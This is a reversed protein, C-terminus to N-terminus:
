MMRENLRGSGCRRLAARTASSPTAIAAGTPSTAARLAAEFADRAAPDTALHVAVEQGIEDLGAELMPPTVNLSAALVDRVTASTAGLHEVQHVIVGFWDRGSPSPASTIAGASSIARASAISRVVEQPLPAQLLQACNLIGAGWNNRDWHPPTSASSTLLQKFLRSLNPRGFRAVLNDWGHKALWLAAAGAVTAVAFSTGKGMDVRPENAANAIANWVSEGPASVDVARGRCSGSWPAQDFTTGAVAITEDYAAPWVVFRVCNGAAAIVICGGSVAYTIADHLYGWGLGGLSLSIIHCGHDAAYRIAKAVNSMDFLVISDTVRLDMVTADPAVGTVHPRGGPGEDSVIVSGTGTGHGPTPVIGGQELPDIPSDNNAMFNWGGLAERGNLEPHKTYGTDPHGIVIGTGRGIGSEALDQWAARVAVQELSWEWDGAAGPNNEGNTCDFSSFIGGRLSAEASAGPPVVALELIPEAAEIDGDARLAYVDDWLQAPTLPAPPTAHFDRDGAPAGRWFPDLSWGAGLRRTLAARATTVPAASAGAGSPRVRLFIGKARVHAGSVPSPAQITQDSM